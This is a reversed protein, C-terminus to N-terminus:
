DSVAINVTVTKLATGNCNTAAVTVTHIGSADPTGTLRLINGNQVAEVWDPLEGTAISMPMSGAFHLEAHYPQGVVGAKYEIFGKNEVPECGCDGECCSYNCILDKIVALTTPQISSICSGAHHLVARTGELGRDILITGAENYARVTELATDSRVTLYIYSEPEQLIALLDATAAESMPLYRDGAELRQTTYASFFDSVMM